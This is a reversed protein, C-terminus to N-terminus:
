RNRLTGILDQRAHDRGRTPLATQRGWTDTPKIRSGDCRGCWARVSVHTHAPQSSRPTPVPRLCHGSLETDGFPLLDLKPCLREVDGVAEPEAIRDHTQTAALEAPDSAAVAPGAKNRNAQLVVKQTSQ